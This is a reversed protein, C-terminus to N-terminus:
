LAGRGVGPGAIADRMWEVLAAPKGWGGCEWLWIRCGDWALNRRHEPVDASRLLEATGFASARGQEGDGMALQAQAGISGAYARLTLRERGPPLLTLAVQAERAAKEFACANLHAGAAFLTLVAKGLKDQTQMQSELAALAQSYARGVLAVHHREYASNQLLLWCTTLLGRRTTCEAEFDLCKRLEIEAAAWEDTSYLACGLQGHCHAIM